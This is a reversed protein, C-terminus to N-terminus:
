QNKNNPATSFISKLKMRASAERNSDGTKSAIEIQLTLSRPSYGALGAFNNLLRQAAQYEQKKAAIDALEIYPEPYNPELLIARAFAKEARSVNDVSPVMLESRGVNTFALARRNYSIDKAAILFHELAEKYRKDTFLFSGFNNHAQAFNPEYRIAKIYHQEATERDGERLMLSALGNHVGASEPDINLAKSFHFRSSDLNDRRLYQLGLKIHTVLAKQMDPKKQPRDWTEV